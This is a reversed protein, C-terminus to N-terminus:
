KHPSASLDSWIKKDFTVVAKRIGIEQLAYGPSTPFFSTKGNKEVCKKHSEGAVVNKAM